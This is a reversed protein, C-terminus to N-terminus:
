RGSVKRDWFREKRKWEQVSLMVQGLVFVHGQFYPPMEEPSDQLFLVWCPKMGKQKQNEAKRNRERKTEGEKIETKDEPSEQLFLIWYCKM